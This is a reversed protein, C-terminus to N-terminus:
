IKWIIFNGDVDMARGGIKKAECFEVVAARVGDIWMDHGSLFGGLRVHPWWAKLDAAVADHTHIGDIYVWDVEESWNAAADLSRKRHVTVPLYSFRDVVDKYVADIQDQTRAVTSSYNTGDDNHEWPDILHLHM